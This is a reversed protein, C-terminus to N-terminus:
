RQRTDLDRGIRLGVGPRGCDHPRGPIVRVPNWSASQVGRQQLNRIGALTPEVRYSRPGPEPPYGAASSLKVTLRDAEGTRKDIRVSKPTFVVHGAGNVRCGPRNRATVVDGDGAGNGTSLHLILSRWPGARGSCTHEEIPQESRNQHHVQGLEGM